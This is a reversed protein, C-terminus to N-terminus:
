KIDYHNAAIVFFLVDIYFSYLFRRHMVNERCHWLLLQTPYEQSMKLTTWM